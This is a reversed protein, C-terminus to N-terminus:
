VKIRKMIYKYAFAPLIIPWGIIFGVMLRMLRWPTELEKSQIHDFFITFILVMSVLGAIIYFFVLMDM